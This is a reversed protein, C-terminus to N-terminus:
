GVEYRRSVARWLLLGTLGVAAACVGIVLVYRPSLTVLAMGLSGMFFSGSSMLASASGADGDHFNLTLYSGPPRTASSTMSLLFMLIGFHWPSLEGIAYALVGLALMAAFCFTVITRRRLKGNIAMYLAPGVIAGAAGLGFFLSYAFHGLGFGDQYIFSSASVYAMICISPISFLVIMTAFRGHRMLSGLRGMARLIGVGSKEHITEKYLLAGILVAVGLLTQAYFVGRWDVFGIIASGILPAIIPCIMILSQIVALISEQQRGKFVDKVIASAVAMGSGGGIGQLVRAGSMAGISGSLACLLSGAFYLVLGVILVPRRGYKDSLSGWVLTSAGFAIFFAILTFNAQADTAGFEAVVAPLSPLYMDTSLPPFASIAILFVVLLKEKM